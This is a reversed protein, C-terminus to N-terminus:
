SQPNIESGQTPEGLLEACPDRGTVRRFRAGLGEVIGSSEDLEIREIRHAPFYVTVAGLLPPEPRNAQRVWDEYADLSVGRLMAGAPTVSHLVGWYKERPSGLHVTVLDGPNM